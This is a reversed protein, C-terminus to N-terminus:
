GSPWPANLRQALSREILPQKQPSIRNTGPQPTFSKNADKCRLRQTGGRNNGWYLVPKTQQCQPCPDVCDYCDYM